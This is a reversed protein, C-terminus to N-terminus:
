RGGVVDAADAVLRLVVDGMIRHVENRSKGAAWRAYAGELVCALKFWALVVYYELHDLARGTRRAYREALEDRTPLGDRTTLYMAHRPKTEGPDTWGSLLWALDLLPDGITAQEWDVIAALRAPAGHHFMVNIFQYDGHMIAPPSMPPVNKELWRAVADLGPLDRVRYSALQSLWRPVQRELFGEPKGFEGLGIARWDVNALDALADVLGLGLGRRAAADADFPPPLPDKPTFGDVWEMVYFCAGLVTPDDCVALPRPHPVDTRDLATLVQHERLMIRNFADPNQLGTAPRRLVSTHGGRELRFLESSAGATIRTVRLPAGAGPLRDALWGALRPIDVLGALEDQMPRVDCMAARAAL